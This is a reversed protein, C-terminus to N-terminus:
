SRKSGINEIQVEKFLPDDDDSLKRSIMANFVKLSNEYTSSAECPALMICPFSLAYTPSPPDRNRPSTDRM